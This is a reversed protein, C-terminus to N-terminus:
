HRHFRSFAVAAEVVLDLPNGHCYNDIWAWVAEANVGRLPNIEGNKDADELFGIGSLFGLVWQADQLAPVSNPYRRDATWTGCSVTGAGTIQYGMPQASGSACWLLILTGLVLALKM